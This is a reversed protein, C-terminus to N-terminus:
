LNRLIDNWIIEAAQWVSFAQQGVGMYPFNSGTEGDCLEIQMTAIMELQTSMWGLFAERMSNDLRPQGCPCVYYSAADIINLKALYNPVWSAWSCDCANAAAIAAHIDTAAVDLYHEVTALELGTALVLRYTDGAAWSVGAATITTATVATVDGSTSQTTNYLVMGVLAQVGTNIFNGQSDVLAADAPGAGEHAGTLMQDVCWFTVFSWAESYRGSCAM